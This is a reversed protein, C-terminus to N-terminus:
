CVAGPPPCCSGVRVRWPRSDVLWACALGDTCLAQQVSLDHIDGGPSEPGLRPGVDVDTVTLHSQAPVRPQPNDGFPQLFPFRINSANASGAELGGWPRPYHEPKNVSELSPEMQLACLSLYRARGAKKKKVCAYFSQFSIYWINVSLIKIPSPCHFSIITM